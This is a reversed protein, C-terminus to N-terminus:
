RKSENKPLKQLLPYINQQLELISIGHKEKLKRLSEHEIKYRKKGSPSIVEKVKVKGYSTQLDFLRRSLIRREVPFFRVGISTSHELIFASLGDLDQQKVLTSLQLGPRGKKMQISSFYFDIAGHALLGQQFDEGLLEATSDDINTELLM